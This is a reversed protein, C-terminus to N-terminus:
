NNFKNSILDPNEYINWIIELTTNNSLLFEYLPICQFTDLEFRGIRFRVVANKIEVIYNHFWEVIDWEYIEKWSRDKLGTYQNIAIVKWARSLCTDIYNDPEWEAIQELTWISDNVDAIKLSLEPFITDEEHQYIYRFKIERM